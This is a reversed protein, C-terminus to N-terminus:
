MGQPSGGSTSWGKSTFEGVQAGEIAVGIVGAGGTYFGSTLDSAFAISPAPSRGAAAKLPGTMVSQGDTCLSATLASAIDSLDSNVASSSITTGPVFAAQPLSYTGTGNRPM